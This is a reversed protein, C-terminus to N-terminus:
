WAMYTEMSFDYCDGKHHRTEIAVSIYVSIRWVPFAAEMAGETRKGKQSLM